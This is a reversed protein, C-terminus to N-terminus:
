ETPCVSNMPPNTAPAASPPSTVVMAGRWVTPPPQQKQWAARGITAGIGALVGVIIWHYRVRWGSQPPSQYDLTKVQGDPAREFQVCLNGASRCILGVVDDSRMASLDHVHRQCHACFRRCDDGTMANWDAPCPAPVDIVPLRTPPGNM